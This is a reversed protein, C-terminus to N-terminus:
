HRARGIRSLFEEDQKDWLKNVLDGFKPVKLFLQELRRQIEPGSKHKSAILWFVQAVLSITFGRYDALKELSSTREGPPKALFAALEKVREESLSMIVWRRGNRKLKLEHQKQCALCRKATPLAELRKKHISQGCSVCKGFVGSQIRSITEEEEMLRKKQADRVPDPLGLDDVHVRHWDISRVLSEISPAASKRAM